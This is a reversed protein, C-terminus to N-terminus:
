SMSLPVDWPRFRIELSASSSPWLWAFDIESTGTPALSNNVTRLCHFETLSASNLIINDREASVNLGIYQEM